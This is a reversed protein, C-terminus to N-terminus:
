DIPELLRAGDSAVHDVAHGVPWARLATAPAPRLLQDPDGSAEGLWLPWDAEEIILPARDHM